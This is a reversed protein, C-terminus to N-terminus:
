TQNRVREIHESVQEFSSDMSELAYLGPLAAMASQGDGMGAALKGYNMAYVCKGQAKLAPALRAFVTYASSMTGHLLVVPNEGEAPTCEVNSGEPSADPTGLSSLYAQLLNQKEPMHPAMETWSSVSPPPLDSQPPLASAVGTSALIATASVAAFFGKMRGVM